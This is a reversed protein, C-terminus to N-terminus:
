APAEGEAKAEAQFERPLTLSSTDGFVEKLARMARLLLMSVAKPSRDLRRAVEPAPLREILTLLIVQRHDPSLTHIAEMLRDLREERRFVRSPSTAPSEPELRPASSDSSPPTAIPVERRYDAKQATLRRACDTVVHHAIGALWSRFAAESDGRFQAISRFARLLVEQLLDDIEVRGKLGEGVELAILSRMPGEQERALRDFAERNGDRARQILEHRKIDASM